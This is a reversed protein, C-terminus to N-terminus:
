QRAEKKAPKKIHALAKTIALLDECTVLPLPLARIGFFKPALEAIHGNKRGVEIHLRAVSDRNAVEVILKIHEASSVLGRRIRVGKKAWKKVVTQPIIERALDQEKAVRDRLFGFPEQLVDALAGTKAM